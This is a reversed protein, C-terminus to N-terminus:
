SKNVDSPQLVSAVLPRGAAGLLLNGQEQSWGGAPAQLAEPVDGPLAERRQRVPQVHRRHQLVALPDPSALVGDRGSFPVM